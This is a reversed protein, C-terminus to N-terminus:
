WCRPMNAWMFLTLMVLGSLMLGYELHVSRTYGSAAVLLAGDLIASFARISQLTFNDRRDWDDEWDGGNM